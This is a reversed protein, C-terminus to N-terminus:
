YIKRVPKIMNCIEEWTTEEEEKTGGMREALRLSLEDKKEQQKLM